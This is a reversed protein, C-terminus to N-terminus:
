RCFALRAPHGGEVSFECAAFGLLGAAVGAAAVGDGGGGGDAAPMKTGDVLLLHLVEEGADPEENEESWGSADYVARMNAEVLGDLVAKLEAPLEAARFPLLQLPPPFAAAAAAAALGDASAAAAAVTVEAAALQAVAALQQQEEEEEVGDSASM